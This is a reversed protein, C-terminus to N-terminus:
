YELNDKVNTSLIQLANEVVVDDMSYEPNQEHL